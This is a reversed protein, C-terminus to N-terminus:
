KKVFYHKKPLGNAVHLNWCNNKSPMCIPVNCRGCKFTTTNKKQPSDYEHQCVSCAEVYNIKIMPHLLSENSTTSANINRTQCLNATTYMTLASAASKKFEHHALNSKAFFTIAFYANTFCFGLIGAFQRKHPNKTQLADEMGCRGTRYHNHIDISEANKLYDVAVQLCPVLGYHRTKQPEGPISM